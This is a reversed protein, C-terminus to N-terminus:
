NKLSQIFNRLESRLYRQAAPDERVAEALGYVMRGKRENRFLNEYITKPYAEPASPQAVVDVTVIEFDSVNGQHDVNGSGRSSVGLRVGDELLTRVIQGMPTPIVKLKGYGNAGDMWMETIKHSVRDLNITLEDPHDVEGLIPAGQQVKEMLGTVARSIEDVPYVRENQNRIGGMMFIGKMFISKSKGDENLETFIETKAQLPSLREILYTM